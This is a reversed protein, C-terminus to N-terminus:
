AEKENFNVWDDALIDIQNPTYPTIRNGSNIALYPDCGNEEPKVLFVYTGHKAWRYRTIKEGAKLKHIGVGLDFSKDKLEELYENMAEDLAESREFTFLKHSANRPDDYVKVVSFGKDILHNAFRMSRIDVYNEGDHTKSRELSDNDKTTIINM